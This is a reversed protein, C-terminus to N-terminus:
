KFESGKFIDTFLKEKAADAYSIICQFNYGNIQRSYLIIHQDMMSSTFRCKSKDFNKGDVIETSFNTEVKTSPLYDRYYIGAFEKKNSMQRMSTLLLM